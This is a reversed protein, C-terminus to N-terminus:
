RERILGPTLDDKETWSFPEHHMRWAYGAAVGASFIFFAAVMVNILDVIGLRKREVAKMPIGGPKGADSM